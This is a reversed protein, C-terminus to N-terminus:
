LEDKGAETIVFEIDEEMTTPDLGAPKYGVFLNRVNKDSYVHVNWRSIEIGGFDASPDTQHVWDMAAQAAELRQTIASKVNVYYLSQGGADSCAKSIKEIDKLLEEYDELSNIETSRISIALLPRILVDPISDLVTEDIFPKDQM